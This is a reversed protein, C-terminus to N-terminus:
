VRDGKIVETVESLSMERRQPEEREGQSNKSSEEVTRIMYAM